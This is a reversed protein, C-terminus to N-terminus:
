YYRESFNPDPYSYDNRLNPRAHFTLRRDTFSKVYCWYNVQGWNKESKRGYLKDALYQIQEKLLKIERQHKEESASFLEKLKELESLLTLSHLDMSNM